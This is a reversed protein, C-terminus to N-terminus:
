ELDMIYKEWKKQFAEMDDIKLVKKLTKYGTPDTKHNKLFEKYFELLLWKEQLYYLLYRAQGYNEAMVLRNYFDNKDYSFLKKFSILKKANIMDQLWPLRWNLDGWIMNNRTSSGEYLSALGEDFWPPCKPFNARMFPHVMEHILTGNGTTMDMVLAKHIDSYYGAVGGYYDDGNFLNKSFDAYTKHDKFLWIELIEDPNKDFFERKFIDTVFTVMPIWDENLEKKSYNSIIIFPKAVVIEYKQNFYKAPYKRIKEIRKKYDEDSFDAFTSNAFLISLLTYFILKGM